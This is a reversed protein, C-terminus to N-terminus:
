NTRYSTEGGEAQARTCFRKSARPEDSATGSNTEILDVLNPKAILVHDPPPFHVLAGVAIARNVVGQSYALCTAFVVRTQPDGTVRLYVMPGQALASSDMPVANETTFLPVLITDDASLTSIPMKKARNSNFFDGPIDISTSTSQAPLLEFNPLTVEGATSATFASNNSM